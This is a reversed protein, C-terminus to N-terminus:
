VGELGQVLGQLTMMLTRTSTGVPREHELATLVLVKFGDVEGGDYTRSGRFLQSISQNILLQRISPRVAQNIPQNISNRVGKRGKM